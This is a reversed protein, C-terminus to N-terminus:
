PTDDYYDENAKLFVSLGKALLISGSCAILGFMGYFGFWNSINGLVSSELDEFHKHRHIFFELLVSISCIIWMAKWFSASIYPNDMPSSTEEPTKTKAKAKNTTTNKRTVKKKTAM